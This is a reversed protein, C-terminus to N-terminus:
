SVRLFEGPHRNPPARRAAPRSDVAIAGPALCCIGAPDTPTATYVGVLFPRALDLKM